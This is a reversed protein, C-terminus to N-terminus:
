HEDLLRGLPTTPAVRLAPQSVLHLRLIERRVSLLRDSRTRVESGPALEAHCAALPRAVGAVEVTCLRCGGEPRQGPGACLSPIEIGIRRAAALITEGPEPVVPQGDISASEIHSATM